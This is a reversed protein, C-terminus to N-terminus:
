SFPQVMVVGCCRAAVGGIQGSVTRRAAAHRLPPTNLFISAQREEATSKCHRSAAAPVLCAWCICTAAPDILAIDRGVIVVIEDRILPYHTCGLIITDVGQQLLPRICEEIASHIATSDLEGTETLPVLKPCAQAFPEFGQQEVLRQYRGNAVTAATALIGVKGNKTATRVVDAFQPAITGLIPVPIAARLNSARHTTNTNSAAVLISAGRDVLFQCDEQVFRQITEADRDGYPARATDALYVFDYAPLQQLLEKVVTLGGVGSDFLGIMSIWCVVFRPRPAQCSLHSM